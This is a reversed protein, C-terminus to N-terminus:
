GHRRSFLGDEIKEISGVTTEFELQGHSYVRHTTNVIKTCKSNGRVILVVVISCLSVVLILLNYIKGRM